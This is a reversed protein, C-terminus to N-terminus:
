EYYDVGLSKFFDKDTPIEKIQKNKLEQKNKIQRLEPFKKFMLELENLEKIIISKIIKTEM